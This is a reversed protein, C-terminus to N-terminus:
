PLPLLIEKTKNTLSKISISILTFAFRPFAVCIKRLNKSARRHTVFTSEMQYQM